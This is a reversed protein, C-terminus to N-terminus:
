VSSAAHCLSRDGRHLDAGSSLRQRQYVPRDSNADAHSGLGRLLRVLALTSNAKLAYHIAHPYGAFADDIAESPDFTWVRVRIQSSPSYAARAVFAGDDRLVDVTDGSAPTRDVRAIAGSFVWPHRERLSKDRGPKLRLVAVVDRLPSARWAVSQM